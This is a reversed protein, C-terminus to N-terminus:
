RKEFNERATVILEIAHASTRVTALSFEKFSARSLVHIWSEVSGEIKVDMQVMKASFSKEQIGKIGPIQDLLIKKFRRLAEVGSLGHVTIEVIGLPSPKELMNGNIDRIIREAIRTSAKRIAEAGATTEEAHIAVGQERIWSLIRGTETQIARLAIDAQASMMATGGVAGMVESTVTGVIVIEAGAQKGFAIAGQNGLEPVQFYFPIQLRKRLDAPDFVLFGKRRLQNLITREGIRPFTTKEQQGNWWYIYKEKETAKEAILLLIALQRAQRPIMGQAELDKELIGLDITAQIMVTHLNPSQNESLIKYNQIYGHSQGYIPETLRPSIEAEKEPSVIARVAEKVANRFADSIARERAAAYDADVVIGVGESTVSQHGEGANALPVFSLLIMALLAM